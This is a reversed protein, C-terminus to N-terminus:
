LGKTSRLFLAQFNVGRTPGSYIKSLPGLHWLAKRNSRYRRGIRRLSSIRNMAAETIVKMTEVTSLAQEPSTMVGVVRDTLGADEKLIKQFTALVAHNHISTRASVVLMVVCRKSRIYEESM